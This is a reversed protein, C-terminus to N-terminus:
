IAASEKEVGTPCLLFAGPYFLSFNKYGPANRVEIGFIRQKFNRFVPLFTYFFNFFYKSRIKPTYAGWLQDFYM